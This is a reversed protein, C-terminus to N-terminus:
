SQGKTRRKSRRKNQRKREAVQGWLMVPIQRLREGEFPVNFFDPGNKAGNGGTLLGAVAVGPFGLSPGNACGGSDSRIKVIERGRTAWLISDRRARRERVRGTKEGTLLGRAEVGRFGPSRWRM